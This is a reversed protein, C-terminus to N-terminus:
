NIISLAYFVLLSSDEHFLNKDYEHLPPLKCATDPASNQLPAGNRLIHNLRINLTHLPTVISSEHVVCQECNEASNFSVQSTYKLKSNAKTIDSSGCPDLHNGEDVCFSTEFGILMIVVTQM